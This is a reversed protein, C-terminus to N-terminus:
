PYKDFSDITNGCWGGCGTYYEHILQDTGIYFLHDNGAADTGGTLPGLQTGNNTLESRPQGWKVTMDVNSNPAYVDQNTGIYYPTGFSTTTTPCGSSLNPPALAGAEWTGGIDAVLTLYTQGEAPGWVAASTGNYLTASMSGIPAMSSSINPSVAGGSGSLRTTKWGSSSHSVDWLNFDTGTVFVHETSGDWVATMGQGDVAEAAGPPYGQYWTGHYRYLEHINLSADTYFVHSVNSSDTFGALTSFQFSGDGNSLALPAPAQTASSPGTLIVYGSGSACSSASGYWFMDVIDPRNSDQPSVSEYIVHNTNDYANYYALLVTGPTPDMGFNLGCGVNLWCSGGGCLHENIQSYKPTYSIVQEANSTFYSTLRASGAAECRGESYIVSMIAAVGGIQLLRMSMRM